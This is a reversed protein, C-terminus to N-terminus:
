KRTLVCFIFSWQINLNIICLHFKMNYQVIRNHMANIRTYILILIRLKIFYLDTYVATLFPIDYSLIGVLCM